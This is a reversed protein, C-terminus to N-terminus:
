QSVNSEARRDGYSGPKNKLVALPTKAAAKGTIQAQLKDVQRQLQSIRAPYLHETVRPDSQM